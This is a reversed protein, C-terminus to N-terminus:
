LPRHRRRGRGHLGRHRLRGRGVRPLRGDGSDGGADRAPRPAPPGAHQGAGGRPRRLRENHAGGVAHGGDGASHLQGQRGRRRPRHGVGPDHLLHRGQGGLLGGPGRAWRAGGRFVHKHRVRRGRGKHRTDRAEDRSLHGARLRGDGARVGRRHHHHGHGGGRRGRQQGDRRPRGVRLRDERRAGRRGRGPHRRDQPRPDRRRDRRRRRPRGGRERRSHRRPRGRLGAQPRYGPRDRQGRGNSHGEQRRSTG